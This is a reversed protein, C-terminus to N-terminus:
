KVQPAWEILIQLAICMSQMILLLEPNASNISFPHGSTVLFDVDTSM